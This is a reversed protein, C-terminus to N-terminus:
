HKEHERGKNRSCVKAEVKSLFDFRGVLFSYPHICYFVLKSYCYWREKLECERLCMRIDVCLCVFMKIDILMTNIKRIKVWVYVLLFAFILIFFIAWNGNWKSLTKNTEGDKTKENKKEWEATSRLTSFIHRLSM